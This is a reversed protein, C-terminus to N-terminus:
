ASAVALDPTDRAGDDPVGPGKQWDPKAFLASAGGGGAGLGNALTNENWVMEPIYGLASAGTLSNKKGWWTGSADDFMTGGMATVEPLNGPFQVAPGHTAVPETNQVDCGGGGSDGSAVVITIGQANAQQALSRYAPLSDNECIGYSVSIVPALSQSVAYTLAVFANSSVVYYLNAKPAIAGSWELDLNGEIQAENIGPDSGVVIVHPTNSPLGFLNRFGALDSAVIDSQGVVAISQGSGDYGAAALPAANYITMWDGPALYHSSGSTFNPPGMVRAQPRPTFDNLGLFGGVVDALAAPVSPEARNAFHMRGNVEYRHISTHLARGIRAATGSFAIWNRGRSRENVTLGQGTLWSIVRSEDAASLGFRDAYEEPTLWRHYNASAPNRQDRLLQELEFQQAGSPRVLLMAHDIHLDAAVEGRDFTARALRHVNGRLARVDNNDPARLIRNPAAAIAAPFLALIAALAACYRM